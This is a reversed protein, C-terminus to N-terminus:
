PTRLVRHGAGRTARLVLKGITDAHLAMDWSLTTPSEQQKLGLGKKFGGTEGQREKLTPSGAKTFSTEHGRGHRKMSDTAAKTAAKTGPSFLQPMVLSVM